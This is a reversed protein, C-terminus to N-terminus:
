QCPSLIHDFFLSSVHPFIVFSGLTNAAPAGTKHEWQWSVHPYLDVVATADSHQTWTSIWDGTRDSIMVSWWPDIRCLQDGLSRLPKQQCPKSSEGSAEPHKQISSAMQVFCELVCCFVILSSCVSVAVLSGADRHGKGSIQTGIPLPSTVQV